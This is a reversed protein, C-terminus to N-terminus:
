AAATRRASLISSQRTSVFTACAWKVIPDNAAPTATTSAIPLSASPASWWRPHPEIRTPKTWARDGIARQDKQGKM